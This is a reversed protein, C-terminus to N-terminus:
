FFSGILTVCQMQNNQKKSVERKRQFFISKINLLLRLGVSFTFLMYLSCWIGGRDRCVTKGILLVRCKGDTEKLSSDERGKGEGCPLLSKKYLEPHSGSPFSHELDGPGRLQSGTLSYPCPRASEASGCLPCLGLSPVCALAWKLVTWQM